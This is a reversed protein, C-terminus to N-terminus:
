IHRSHAHTRPTDRVAAVVTLICTTTRRPLLNPDCGLVSELGKQDQAVAVVLPVVLSQKGAFM